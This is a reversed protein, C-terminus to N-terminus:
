KGRRLDGFDAFHDIRRRFMGALPIWLGSHGTRGASLDRPVNRRFRFHVPYGSASQRTVATVSRWSGNIQDPDFVSERGGTVRRPVFVQIARSVQEIRGAMLALVFNPSVPGM